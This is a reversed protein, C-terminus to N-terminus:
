FKRFAASSNAFESQLAPLILGVEHLWTNSFPKRNGPYLRSPNLLDIGRSFHKSCRLSLPLSPTKWISALTDAGRIGELIRAQRPKVASHSAHANGRSELGWLFFVRVRSLRARASANIDGCVTTNGATHLWISHSLLASRPYRWETRRKSHTHHSTAPDRMMEGETIIHCPGVVLFYQARSWLRQETWTPVLKNVNRFRM